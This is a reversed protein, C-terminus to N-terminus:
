VLFHNQLWWLGLLTAIEVTIVIIYTISWNRTSEDSM